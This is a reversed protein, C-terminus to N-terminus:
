NSICNCVNYNPVQCKSEYERFLERENKLYNLEDNFYLQDLM